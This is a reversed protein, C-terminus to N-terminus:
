NSEHKRLWIGFFRDYIIYNGDYKYVFERNLLTKLALSISSAAPLHYRSIFEQALVSAVEKEQAIASLLAAQNDTLSDYYNIFAIEQENVLDNIVNDVEATTIVNANQYLRNLIDQIYWTQGDVKNYLYAFTDDDM